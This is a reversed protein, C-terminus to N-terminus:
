KDESTITLHKLNIRSGMEIKKNISYFEGLFQVFLFSSSALVVRIVNWDFEVVPADFSSALDDSVEEM